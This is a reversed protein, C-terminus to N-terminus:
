VPLDSRGDVPPPGSGTTSPASGENARESWAMEGYRRQVLADIEARPKGYSIRCIERLQRARAQDGNPIPEVYGEFPLAQRNDVLTKIAMHYAPLGDLEHKAFTPAMEDAFFRVQGRLGGFVVHTRTNILVSELIPRLRPHSPNQTAVTVGVGYSRSREFFAAM